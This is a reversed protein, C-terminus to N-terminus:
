HKYFLALFKYFLAPFKYFLGPFLSGGYIELTQVTYYFPLGDSFIEAVRKGDFSRYDIASCVVSNSSCTCQDACLYRLEKMQQSHIQDMNLASRKRSFIYM